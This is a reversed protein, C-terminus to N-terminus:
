KSHTVTFSQVVTDFTTALQQFDAAPLAQVVITFMRNGDFLFYHGHVGQEDGSPFYYLYYIGPLGGVNVQQSALVTLHADPTSLVANTVAQMDALNGTDVARQLTFERVNVADQGGPQLLLGGQGDTTRRWRGPYAIRYGLAADTYSSYSAPVNAAVPPPQAHRHGYVAYLVGGCAILVFAVILVLLRKRTLRRAPRKEAAPEGAAIQGHEDEGAAADPDEVAHQPTEACSEQSTPESNQVDFGDEGPRTREITTAPVSRRETQGSTM